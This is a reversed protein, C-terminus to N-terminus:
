NGTLPRTATYTSPVATTGNPGTGSVTLTGAIGAAPVPAQRNFVVIVTCSGGAALNTGAVCTGGNTRFTNGSTGQPAVSIAAITFAAANGGAPNPNTLTLTRSLNAANFTNTGALTPNPAVGQGTLNATSSTALAGSTAVVTLSASLGSAASIAGPRFTV